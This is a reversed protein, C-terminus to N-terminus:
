RSMAPTHARGSAPAQAIDALWKEVDSRRFRLCKKHIRIAPLPNRSRVRSRNRTMEFVARVSTQLLTAVDTATM